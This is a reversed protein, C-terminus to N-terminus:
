TAVCEFGFNQTETGAYVFLFFRNIKNSKKKNGCCNRRKVEKKKMLIKSNHWAERKENM